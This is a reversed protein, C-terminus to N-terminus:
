QECDSYEKDVILDLEVTMPKNDWNEFAICYKGAGHDWGM